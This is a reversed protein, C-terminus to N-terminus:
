NFGIAFGIMLAVGVVICIWYFAKGDIMDPSKWVAYVVSLFTIYSMVKDFASVGAGRSTTVAILVALVVVTAVICFAWEGKKDAAGMSGKRWQKSIWEPILKM